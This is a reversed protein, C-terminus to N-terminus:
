RSETPLRGTDLDFDFPDPIHLSKGYPVSISDWYRGERSPQSHITAVGEGDLPDILLYLPIGSSAYGRPKVERDHRLSSRSTVEVVLEFSSPPALYGPYALRDDPGVALDPIYRVPEGDDLVEITANQSASWDDPCVALFARTLLNITRMHLSRPMPSVVINGEIIEARAGEPLAEYLAFVDSEPRTLMPTAMERRGDEDKSVVVV